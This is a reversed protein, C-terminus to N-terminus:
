VFALNILAQQELVHAKASGTAPSASEYRKITTIHRDGAIPRLRPKVFTLPGMNAPEEQLWIIKRADPMSKFIAALQKEPFPYLQEITIIARDWAERKRRESRLEHVIKGSCVIIKSVAAPDTIELDPVVVQFEGESLWEASSCAPEARLMSKPMFFVAPKRWKRLAHRRLAHFYQGSTSLQFVQINDQAALQLFREIRASSHEPGQGEYGHPLLMVLGSLLKWKDEAASVYQDIIIQAGNAFDGFQAEWIVLGDPYERSFGYEFGLAGAESLPSDTVTFEGQDEHLHSLPEFRSGNKIDVLSAHRHNFTGRRVDQGTLRIKMGEDLLSALALSEAMGWDVPRDGDGMERRQEMLRKIKPHIAFNDPWQTVLETLESVRDPEIATPVEFSEEYLGGYYNGWFDPLKWYTPRTSSSRGQQQQESLDDMKDKKLTELEAETKGIKEGYIEWLMPHAKIDGYLQPQTTTPDEIESHGYRRYGILDVVVDTGFEYRFDAAIQGAWWVADPDEGNVHIIPVSLRRAADSAYRTSHLCQPEATFGILNNVIVQITGGVTYDDVDAFNLTESVIGQGAFAADGHLTVPLMAERGGDGRREQRARTRGMVVPNVAELHSPNTSLHVEVKGGSHTTYSGMAGFHYKVDGAGLVSRPDVDEMDTFVSAGPINVINKMVNLRGRHSMALYLFEAGRSAATELISDMLPVIGAVGDSSFRKSGVYRSHMFREFLESDMLRSLVYDRDVEPMGAEMADRIWRQQDRDVLHMFEVGLSSCYVERYRAVDNADGSAMADTIDPHEYPKIRDFPDISAMLYGWRRFAEAVPNPPFEDTSSTRESSPQQTTSM